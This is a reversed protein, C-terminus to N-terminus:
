KIQLGIDIMCTRAHGNDTFFFIIIIDARVATTSRTTVTFTLISFVMDKNNDTKFVFYFSDFYACISYIM